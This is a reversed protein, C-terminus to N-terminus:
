NKPPKAKYIDTKNRPDAPLKETLQVAPKVIAGLQVLFGRMPPGRFNAVYLGKKARPKSEVSLDTLRHNLFM